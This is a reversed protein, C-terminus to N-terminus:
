LHPLTAATGCRFETLMLLYPNKGGQDHLFFVSTLSSFDFDIPSRLERFLPPFDPLQPVSPEDRARLFWFISKFSSSGLVALLIPSRRSIVQTSWFFISIRSPPSPTNFLTWRWWRTIGFISLLRVVTRVGCLCFFFVGKRLLWRMRHAPPARLRLTSAVDYFVPSM